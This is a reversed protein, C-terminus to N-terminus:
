NVAAAIADDVAATMDRSADECAAAEHPVPRTLQADEPIPPRAPVFRVLTGPFPPVTRGIHRITDARVLGDFAPYRRLYAGEVSM